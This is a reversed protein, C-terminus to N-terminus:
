LFFLGDVQPKFRLAVPEHRVLAHLDVTAEPRDVFVLPNKDPIEIQVESEAESWRSLAQLVGAQDSPRM